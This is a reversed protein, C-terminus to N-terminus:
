LRFLAAAAACADQSCVIGTHEGPFQHRTDAKVIQKAFGEQNEDDDNSAEFARFVGCRECARSHAAFSVRYDRVQVNIALASQTYTRRSSPSAEARREGKRERARKANSFFNRGTACRFFLVSLSVTINRGNFNKRPKLKALRRWHATM